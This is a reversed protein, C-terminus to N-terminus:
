NTTQYLVQIIADNYSKVKELYDLRSELAQNMIWSWEMFNIEGKFIQNNATSIMSTAGPLVNEEYNKLVLLDNNRKNEFSQWTNEVLKKQLESQNSLITSNIKYAERRAKNAGNFIPIGLNLQFSQFRTGSGYLVDDAGMGQMTMSYYGVTIEPILAAKEVKIAAENARKEKEIMQLQLHNSVFDSYSQNEIKVSSYNPMLIEKSQILYQMQLQLQYILEQNKKLDATIKAVALEAGNKELHNTEGLKLRLKAKELFQNYISDSQLLVKERELAYILDYFNQTIARKVENESSKYNLQALETQAQYWSKKQANLFPFSINQTVGIRNDNFASNLQGYEGVINLAPIENASKVLVQAANVRQKENKIVLNNTLGQEIVQNLTVKNQAISSFGLFLFLVVLGNKPMSVSSKKEFLMYLIPLIFLTLFTAVLLGGIVVTALPRQVEAGSGNSLAMPLFGLSAVFATMLIPRLRKKTGILIIETLDTIGQKKQANFEAILVIGNLVAVGFLAIFGVGASISFPMGRLALFLIGGITSLPIATYILLAQKISKFAFYLLLFILLLSIPVAVMLRDKAANLNEFSGGYTIYYGTPFKIQAEVKQKMENVLTQVDSEHVNFGVVIRRKTDERQIQNPGNIISVNAVVQLPVQAGSPTPILLNQIDQLNQKENPNVRVVLDFRREGEFLLGASQGAFSANVVKNVDAVNLQYQALVNRKYDIVVQPMGGIPEVYLDKAGKISNVIKGVKNAYKSLTDLDEGYIKCVVDQRAGTMLENFRMQVPYQFGVTIGPVEQLAESMKDSLENFTEASTWEKKDKLIVMMDAAEMPMPDTPVEGSGIKTVVKEVEPFRSKLIGAAKQTSAITTNLNSGTLVRTEVAFDGEELSPIFEGGLQSIVVLSFVFAIVVGIIIKKQNHLAQILRTSYVRELFAMLKESISQPNHKINKLVVASMMPIYTLSLIFAGILAFAVTQAMPKFMKGEIGQLTFIPLYVILIIIQGFVASNMMKKASSNVEKNVEDQSLSLTEEKQHRHFIQHIVAEVIIVAGDVILGFDLAGLSMLNGSVGFLNMMIIAFLMSLPIVSAVLLGARLNGLFVVLVFIVILAGEILNKEVTGIANNVMKTRDLFPEIVVGEPLTKQIQAIREKVNKIVESSNAGKLMMVIAGSVEGENNYCMAGYRTAFGNKVEAVDKIYLPVGSKTTIPTNEIAELNQILGESRIFLVSAEKEIYAGGTNQNNKELADFVDTITIGNANLKNPQISIEVQRLKGGFSSIEAVGKVGTLQRKVVWDQITRLETADYKQEYGKKARVVYQYIEGLGTSIPGLEPTGMGQPLQSQVQQLRETVQQRAWYVDVDDEFVITVLSLGFRSFSRIEKLGAINANAQEIPFTVLREIDTAGFSPAVTIVQVQNNTIDPVADIPLKQVNYVGFGVLVITFLAIILKNKVSFEIIKNLM